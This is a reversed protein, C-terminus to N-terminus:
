AGYVLGFRTCHVAIYNFTSTQKIKERKPSIGIDIFIRHPTMDHLRENIKSRGIM